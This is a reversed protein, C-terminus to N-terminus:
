CFAAATWGAERVTVVKRMARENQHRGADRQLLGLGGEGVGGGAV